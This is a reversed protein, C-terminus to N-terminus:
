FDTPMGLNRRFGVIWEEYGAPLTGAAYMEELIALAEQNEATPDTLLIAREDLARVLDIRFWPDDPFAAALDRMYSLSIDQFQLATDYDGMDRLLAAIRANSIALNRYWGPDSTDQGVLWERLALCDQHSKLAGQLDGNATLADGQRELALAVNDAWEVNYANIDLLLNGQTVMARFTEAASRNDGLAM